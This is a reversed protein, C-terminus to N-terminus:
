FTDVVELVLTSARPCISPESAGGSESIAIECCTTGVAILIPSIEIAFPLIDGM